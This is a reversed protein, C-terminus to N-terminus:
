IYRIFKIMILIMMMMYIMMYKKLKIFITILYLRLLYYKKNDFVIEVFLIKQKKYIKITLCLCQM